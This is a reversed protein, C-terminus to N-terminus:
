DVYGELRARHYARGSRGRVLPWGGRWPARSGTSFLRRAARLPAGDTSGRARQTAPSRRRTVSGRIRPRSRRPRSWPAISTRLLWRSVAPRSRASGLDGRTKAAADLALAATLAEVCASWRKATAAEAGARLLKALQAPDAPTPEARAPRPSGCLVAMTLVGAQWGRWWMIIVEYAVRRLPRYTALEAALAAYQPYFPDKPDIPYAHGYLALYQRAVTIRGDRLAASAQGSSALFSSRRVRVPALSAGQQEVEREASGSSSVRGALPPAARHARHCRRALVVAGAARAACARGVVACAGRDWVRGRCVARSAGAKTALGRM